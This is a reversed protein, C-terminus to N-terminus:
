IMIGVKLGKENTPCEESAYLQKAEDKSTFLDIWMQEAWRTRGHHIRDESMKYRIENRSVSPAPQLNYNINVVIFMLSLELFCM